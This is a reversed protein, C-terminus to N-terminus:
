TTLPVTVVPTTTPRPAGGSPEVTIGIRDSPRVGSALLQGTRDTSSLLGVSRAGSSSMVWVQYVRGSSLSPMGSTTVVAERQLASVVVTVAGGVTAQTAEMRADPADLVKAIAANSAQASELQHQTAVQTIGLGVAAAVSAAAVAGVLRPSRLWGNTWSNSRGRAPQEAALWGAFLRALRTRRLDRRLREAPLPPLQRTRYTAALVRQEMQAPPRVAKAMALGAATERLGRVEAECSPCHQLHREFEEREQADLADLVYSGTLVHMNM